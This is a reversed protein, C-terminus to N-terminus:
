DIKIYLFYFNLVQVSGLALKKIFKKTTTKHGSPLKIYLLQIFNSQFSMLKLSHKIAAAYLMGIIIDFYKPILYRPLKKIFDFGITLWTKIGILDPYKSLRLEIYDMLWNGILM